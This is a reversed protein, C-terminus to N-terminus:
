SVRCFAHMDHYANRKRDARNHYSKGECRFCVGGPGKPVGNEVYTIFRGTGGCRGCHFDGHISTHADHVVIEGTWGWSGDAREGGEAVKGGIAMFAKANVRAGERTEFGEKTVRKISGRM